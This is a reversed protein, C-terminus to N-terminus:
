HGGATFHQGFGDNLKAILEALQRLEAEDWHELMAHFARQRAAHVTTMKSQGAPTLGILQARGDLPDAQRRVLGLTELLSIQRSVSPKGVGICRALDTLRMAGDKALVSLLGYAAPELEPHVSRTLGYSIARARRWPLSLQTELAAMAHDVDSAGAASDVAVPETGAPRTGAAQTSAPKPASRTM